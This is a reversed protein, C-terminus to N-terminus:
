GTSEGILLNYLNRTAKSPTINLTRKLTDVLMRYQAIAKDREGRGEYLSMVDRHIDEREPVERLARLYYSIAQESDGLAKYLRGVGVLAETYTLKLQERRRTIWPMDIDHLYESRYLRIARYWVEPSGTEPAERAETVAEEFHAVDYHVNMQGSPRYFGGSYSTLEYGLRESIKRKTVHFVNTAEKTPLDPWFTEFIEDRTVMPHDVFYYFLNRPLPGDWTVVPVGNMFVRGGSFGYVELHPSPPIAPNFISGGLVESAGLVVATGAQVFSYWPQYPLQRSNIVLQTGHPLKEVLRLFFADADASAPLRDFSDLVLFQPKSKGLDASLADALDAPAVDRTELAQSTQRGFRPDTEQLSSVLNALFKHLDTDDASLTYLYSDVGSGLFWAVYANRTRLRPALLILRRNEIQAAISDHNLDTLIELQTM